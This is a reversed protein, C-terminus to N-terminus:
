HFTWVTVCFLGKESVCVMYQPLSPLIGQYLLETACMEVEEEGQWRPVLFSSFLFHFFVFSSYKAVAVESNLGAKSICTENRSVVSLPTKQYEEEKAIQLEAISVYKHQFNLSTVDCPNFSILLSFFWLYLHLSSCTLQGTKTDQHERSHAQTFRGSYRHWQVCSCLFFFAKNDWFTCM